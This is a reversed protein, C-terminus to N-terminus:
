GRGKRSRNNRWNNNNHRQQDESKREPPNPYSDLRDRLSPGQSKSSPTVTVRDRLPTSTQNLDIPGPNSLRDLLSSSGHRLNPKPPLQHIQRPPEGNLSELRFAESPKQRKRTGGLAPPSSPYVPPYSDIEMSAVSVDNAPASTTDAKLTDEVMVTDQDGGVKHSFSEKEIETRQGDWHSSPRAEPDGLLSDPQQMNEKNRPQMQAISADNLYSNSQNVIPLPSRSRGRPSRNRSVSRAKEELIPPRYREQGIDARKRDRTVIKDRNDESREGPRYFDGFRSKAPLNNFNPGPSYPPSDYRSNAPPAYRGEGSGRPRDDRRGRDRQRDRDELPPQNSGRIGSGSISSVAHELPSRHSVSRHYGHHPGPRSFDLENAPFEMARPGTPLDSRFNERERDPGRSSRESQAARTDNRSRADPPLEPRYSDFARRPPLNDRRRPGVPAAATPGDTRSQFGGYQRGNERTGHADEDAPLPRRAPTSDLDDAIKQRKADSDRGRREEREMYKASPILIPPDLIHSPRDRPNNDHRAKNGEYEPGWRTLLPQSPLSRYDTYRVPSRPSRMRKPPRDPGSARPSRTRPRFTDPSPVRYRDPPDPRNNQPLGPPPVVSPLATSRYRPSPGTRDKSDGDDYSGSALDPRGEKSSIRRSDYRERGSSRSRARDIVKENARGASTDEVYPPKDERPRTRNFGSLVDRDNGRYSISRPSVIEPSARQYGRDSRSPPLPAKPPSYHRDNFSLRPSLARDSSPEYRSPRGRRVNDHDPSRRGPPDRSYYPPSSPSLPILGAAVQRNWTSQDTKSNYYYRDNSGDRAIRMEWGPALPADSDPSYHHRGRKPSPARRLDHERDRPPAMTSASMISPHSPRVFPATLAAAVPKPPLGHTGPPPLTNTISSPRASESHSGSRSKGTSISDERRNGNSVPDGSAVINSPSTNNGVSPTPDFSQSAVAVPPPSSTRESLSTKDTTGEHLSPRKASQASKADSAPMGGLNTRSQYAHLEDMDNDDGGLSVVDSDKDNNISNGNDEEGDNKGSGSALALLSEAGSM